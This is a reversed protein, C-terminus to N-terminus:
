AKNLANDAAFGVGWMALVSAGDNLGHLTGTLLATAVGGITALLMLVSARQNSQFFYSFLSVSIEGKAWKVVAHVLVGALAIGFFGMAQLSFLANM